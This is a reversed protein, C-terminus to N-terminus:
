GAGGQGRAGRRRRGGRRRRTPAAGEAAPGAPVEAPMQRQAQTWWDAVEQEVEGVEARLCLFDYAARFRPHELLRQPRKGRRMLFRPQMSWIERAPTSFRRPILVQPAQRTLVEDAAMQLAMAPSHGRGELVATRARVPAWLLAAYLFAPTVPQGADIRAATNELARELLRLSKPDALEAETQPFLRGFLGLERLDRFNALAERNLLLKIVEDFLRAAPVEDLLGALRPIAARTAAEIEFDLKNAIRVARLMRVPDERYRLEPDGILRIQRAQMDQMAGVCDVLSFDRIDYYLANVTFDRRLADVELSDGYVNDSLIRGNDNRDLSDGPEGRFSTVELVEQGFRVHAIVFRRGVLRCSRFLRKVEEPRADTAIDFDKPELGALIDRVGGGVMYAQYGANKLTYLTKVTAPSILSRSVPHQDRPIRVIAPPPAAKKKRFRFPFFM